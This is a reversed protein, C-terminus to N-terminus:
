RPTPAPTLPSVSAEAAARARAIRDPTSVYFLQEVRDFRLVVVRENPAIPAQGDAVRCPVQVSPRGDAPSVRALGFSDGVELIAVGERGVLDRRGTAPTGDKPMVRAFLTTFLSTRFAPVVGAIPIAISAVPPRDEGISRHLAQTAAFGSIGWVFLVILILLSLPVRGVGLLGLLTGAGHHGHHAVAHDAHAEDAGDLADHADADYDSDADVDHEVDVDHDFDHDADAEGFDIGTTVSVALYVLAIGFPVVFILNWWGLVWQLTMM